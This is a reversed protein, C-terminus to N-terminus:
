SATAACRNHQGLFWEGPCQCQGVKLGGARTDCKCRGAEHKQSFTPCITSCCRLRAGGSTPPRMHSTNCAMRQRPNPCPMRRGTGSCGSLEAFGSFSSLLWRSCARRFYVLWAAMRTM